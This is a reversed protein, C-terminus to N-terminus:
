TYSAKYKRHLNVENFNVYCLSVVLLTKSAASPLQYLCRSPAFNKQAWAFCDGVPPCAVLKKVVTLVVTEYLSIDGM